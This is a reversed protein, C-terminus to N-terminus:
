TLSIFHLEKLSALPLHCIGACEGFNFMNWQCFITDLFWVVLLYLTEYSIWGNQVKCERSIWTHFLHVPHNHHSNPCKNQTVSVSSMYFLLVFFWSASKGQVSFLSTKEKAGDTDLVRLKSHFKSDMLIQVFQWNLSLTCKVALRPIEFVIGRTVMHWCAWAHQDLISISIVQLMLSRLNPHVTLHPFHFNGSKPSILM